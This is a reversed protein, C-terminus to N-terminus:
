NRNLAQAPVFGRGLLTNGSLHLSAPELDVHPLDVEVRQAAMWLEGELDIALVAEAYDPAHTLPVAALPQNEVPVDIHDRRAVRSVPARRREFAGHFVAPDIAAAGQIHFAAQTGRDIGGLRD